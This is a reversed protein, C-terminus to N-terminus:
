NTAPHRYREIDAAFHRQDIYCETAGDRYQAAQSRIINNEIWSIIIAEDIELAQAHNTTSILPSQRSLLSDFHAEYHDLIDSIHQM